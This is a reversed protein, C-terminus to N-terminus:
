AALGKERSNPPRRVTSSGSSAATWSTPTAPSPRSGNPKGLIRPFIMLRLRDVLGAEMLVKVVSLNGITRLPDGGEVPQDRVIAWMMEYTKLGMPMVQPKAANEDILREPNPGPHGFYAPAGEGYSHGDLSIFIDSILGRM